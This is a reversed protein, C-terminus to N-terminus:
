KEYQKLKRKMEYYESLLKIIDDQCFTWTTGWRYRGNIKHVLVIPYNELEEKKSKKIYEKIKIWIDKYKPPNRIYGSKAQILMPIGCIDIGGDDMSKSEARCTGASSFGFMERWIKAIMREFNSGKVKSNTKLKGDAM